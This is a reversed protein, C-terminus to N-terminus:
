KNFFDSPNKGTITKFAGNFSSKSSFGSELAIGLISKNREKSDKIRSMTDAVRFTNVYTNFNTNHYTNILGSIYREPLNLVTAM